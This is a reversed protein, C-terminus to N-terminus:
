ESVGLTPRGREDSVRRCLELLAILFGAFQGWTRYKSV